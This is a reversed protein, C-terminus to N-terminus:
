VVEVAVEKGCFAVGYCFIKQVGHAKIETDYNRDSIQKLAEKALKSLDASEKEAKLEILIGPLEKQKPNRM